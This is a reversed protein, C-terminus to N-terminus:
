QKLPSIQQHSVLLICSNHCKYCGWVQVLVGSDTLVDHSVSLLHKRNYHPFVPSNKLVPEAQKIDDLAPKDEKQVETDFDIRENKKESKVPSTLPSLTLDFVAELNNDIHKNDKPSAMCDSKPSKMKIPSIEPSSTLDFTPLDKVEDKKKQTKPSRVIPTSKNQVKFKKKIATIDEDDEEVKKKVDSVAIKNRMNSGKNLTLSPIKYSKVMIWEVHHEIM